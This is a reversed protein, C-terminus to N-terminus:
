DWRTVIPSALNADGIVLSKKKVEFMFDDPFCEINRRVARKLQATKVQYLDALDRGLMVKLSRIFYIRATIMEVPIIDAMLSLFSSSRRSKKRKRGQKKCLDHSISSLGKTISHNLKSDEVSM